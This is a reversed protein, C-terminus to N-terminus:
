AGFRGEVGPGAEASKQWGSRPVVVRTHRATLTLVGMEAGREGTDERAEITSGDPTRTGSPAGLGVAHPDLLVSAPPRAPAM